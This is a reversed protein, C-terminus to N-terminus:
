QPKRVSLPMKSYWWGFVRAVVLLALTIGLNIAVFSWHGGSLLMAPGVAYLFSQVPSIFPNAIAFDNLTKSRGDPDVIRLLIIGTASVGFAMGLPLMSREFWYDRMLTPFMVRWVVINLLIFTKLEVSIEPSLNCRQRCHSSFKKIWAVFALPTESSSTLSARIFTAWVQESQCEVRCVGQLIAPGSGVRQIPNDAWAASLISEKHSGCPPASNASM